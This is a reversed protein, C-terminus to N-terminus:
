LVVRVEPYWPMRRVLTTEFIELTIMAVGFVHKSLLLTDVLLERLGAPPPESILRWPDGPQTLSVPSVTTGRWKRIHIAYRHGTPGRRLREVPIRVQATLPAGGAPAIPGEALITLSVMQGAKIDGPSKKPFAVTM